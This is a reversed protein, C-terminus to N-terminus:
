AAAERWPRAFTDVIEGLERLRDVSRTRLLRSPDALTDSWIARGALFGSAGARCAIRVCGPFDALPVGQSLVVWPVPVAATVRECVRGLETTSGAGHRPVQAKYLSPRLGGLERAAELLLEDFDEGPAPRVVGELVSLLGATSCRRVFEASMALRADRDADRRWIVLLKLAVAGRARAAASDVADDLRTEEVPGGAVDHRLADAALILGCGDPLLREDAVQEFGYTRDILFGSAHQGATRAVALKFRVLDDDPVPGDTHESLMTRLSERQDMAVMALCGSPRSLDSLDTM